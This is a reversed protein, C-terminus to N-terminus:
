KSVDPAGELWLTSVYLADTKSTRVRVWNNAISNIDVEILAGPSLKGSAPFETGPGTRLYVTARTKKLQWNAEAPLMDAFDDSQTVPQPSNEDRNVEAAPIEALPQEPLSPTTELHVPQFFTAVYGGIATVPLSVGAIILLRAWWHGRRLRYPLLYHLFWLLLISTAFIALMLM